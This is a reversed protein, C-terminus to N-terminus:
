PNRAPTCGPKARGATDRSGEAIQKVVLGARLEVKGKAVSVSTKGCTTDVTFVNQQTRSTPRTSTMDTEVNFRIGDGTSIKISGDNLLIAVSAPTHTTPTEDYRLKVTTSPLAEVRGLKGLIIVASSGNATQIESGTAVIDGTAAPKGNVRVTGTVTLLGLQEQAGAAPTALQSMGALFALTLCFTLLRIKRTHTTM